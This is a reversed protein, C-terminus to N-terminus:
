PKTHALKAIEALGFAINVQCLSSFLPELRYFDEKTDVSLKLNGFDHIAEVQHTLYGSGKQRFPLTVHEIEDKSLHKSQLAELSLMKVAEVYLGFPFGTNETNSVYDVNPYLYDFQEVVLDVLDSGVFPNDATLRIIADASVRQGASIIRSLVNNESGRFAFIGLHECIGVIADDVPQDSTAVILQDLKKSERIRNILNVLLPVGNMKMLVKGPLRTSNM